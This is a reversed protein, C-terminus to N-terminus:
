VYREMLEDASLYNESRLAAGLMLPMTETLTESRDYEYICSYSQMQASV